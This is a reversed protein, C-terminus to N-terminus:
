LLSYGNRSLLGDLNDLAESEIVIAAKDGHGKLLFGYCDQINIAHQALLMLLAHFSGPTDEIIPIVVPRQSVSIQAERLALYARQCDDVLFKVVGFEGGSAMNFALINIQQEDFVKTIRELIGPKNEMFISLHANM